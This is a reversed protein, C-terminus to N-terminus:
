SVPEKEKVPQDISQGIWFSEAKPDVKRFRESHGTATDTQTQTCTCGFDACPAPRVSGVRYVAGVKHKGHPVYLCGSPCLIADDTLYVVLDGPGHSM